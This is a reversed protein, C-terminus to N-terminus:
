KQLHKKTDMQFLIPDYGFGNRGKPKQYEEM